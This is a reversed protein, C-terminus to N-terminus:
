QSLEGHRRRDKTVLNISSDVKHPRTKGAAKLPLEEFAPRYGSEEYRTRPIRASHAGFNVQVLGDETKYLGSPM